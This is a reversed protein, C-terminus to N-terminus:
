LVVRPLMGIAWSTPSILNRPMGSITPSAKIAGVKDPAAGRRESTPSLLTKFLYDNTNVMWPRHDWACPGM